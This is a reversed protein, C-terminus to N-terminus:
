MKDLKDQGMIKKFILCLWYINLSFLGYLGIYIECYEFNNKSYIFLTNHINKDLILYYSYNYIRYYIFTSVFAVSNIKKLNVASSNELLYNLALFITSTKVSLIVSIIEKRNEIDDHTNMYHIMSLVSIHHILMDNKKVYFLHIFCMIGVINSCPIVYFDTMVCFFSYLSIGLNMCHFRMMNTNENEM